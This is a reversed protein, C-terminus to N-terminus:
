KKNKSRFTIKKLSYTYGLAIRVNNTRINGIFLPNGTMYSQGFRVPTIGNSFRFDMIISGRKNVSYNLSLGANLNVWQPEFYDIFQRNTITNMVPLSAGTSTPPLLYGTKEYKEWENFVFSISPGAYVSINMKDFPGFSYKPAIGFEMNHLYYSSLKSNVFTITPDFGLNRDDRFTLLKGGSAAINADFQLGWHKNFSYAARANVVYGINNSRLPQEDTFYNNSVGGLLSLTIKRTTDTQAKVSVSILLLFFTLLSLIKKM